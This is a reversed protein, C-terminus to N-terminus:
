SKDIEALVYGTFFAEFVDNDVELRFLFLNQKGPDSVPLISIRNKLV